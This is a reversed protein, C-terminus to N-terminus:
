AVFVKAERKFNVGVTVLGQYKKITLDLSGSLANSDDTISKKPGAVDITDILGFAITDVVNEVQRLVAAVPEGIFPVTTFLGSKGILINLLVQHVRVFERFAEAVPTAEAALTVPASGQMQSIAVTATSVIDTFGAILQPFPGLGVVILPGNIISISRAPNQLAESKATLAKINEVVKAPPIAALAPVALMAAASTFLTRISVM